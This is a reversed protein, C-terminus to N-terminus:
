NNVKKNRYKKMFEEKKNMSDPNEIAKIETMIYCFDDTQNAKCTCYEIDKVNYTEITLDSGQGIQGVAKLPVYHLCIEKGMKRKCCANSTYVMAFNSNGHIECNTEFRKLSPSFLPGLFINVGLERTMKVFNEDVFDACIFVSLRGLGPIDIIEFQSTLKLNEKIERGNEQKRFPNFKKHTIIMRGLRDLLYTQNQGDEWASGPIIFSYDHKSNSLFNRIEHLVGSTLHFEPFILIDIKEKAFSKLVNMIKDRLLEENKVSVNFKTGTEDIPFSFFDVSSEPLIISAVRLTQKFGDILAKFETSNDLFRHMVFNLDGHGQKHFLCLGNIENASDNEICKLYNEIRDDSKCDLRIRSDEPSLDYLITREADYIEYETRFEESNLPEVPKITYPKRSIKVKESRSRIKERRHKSVIVSFLSILARGPTAAHMHLYYKICEKDQYSPAHFDTSELIKYAITRIQYNSEFDDIFERQRPEIEKYLIIVLDYLNKIMDIQDFLKQM